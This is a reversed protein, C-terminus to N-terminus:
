NFSIEIGLPSTFKVQREKKKPDKPVKVIQRKSNIKQKGFLNGNKPFKYFHSAVGSNGQSSNFATQVMNGNNGLIYPKPIRSKPLKPVTQTRVAINNNKYSNSIKSVNSSNLYKGYYNPLEMGRIGQANQTWKSNLGGLTLEQNLPHKKLFDKINGSVYASKIQRQIPVQAPFFNKGTVRSVGNSGAGYTLYPANDNVLGSVFKMKKSTRSHKRRGFNNSVNYNKLPDYTKKNVEDNSYTMPVNIGALKNGVTRQCINSNKCNILMQPGPWPKREYQWLKTGPTTTGFRNGFRNSRIIGDNINKYKIPLDSRIPNACPPQFGQLIYQNDVPDYPRDLIHCSKGFCNNRHRRINNLSSINGENDNLYDIEINSGKLKRNGNSNISNIGTYDKHIGFKNKFTSLITTSGSIVPANKYPLGNKKPTGVFAVPFQKIRPEESKIFPIDKKSVIILCINVNPNEKIYKLLNKCHKCNELLYTTIM